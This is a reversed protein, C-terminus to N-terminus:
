MVDLSKPIAEIPRLPGADRVLDQLTRGPMLEMVIYPRGAEEDAALVFVCRPHVLSSALLGERRFRQLTESSHSYQASVLKLAVHKKQGPEEAEYVAGMGGKGLLRLIRYGGVTEPMEGQKDGGPPIETQLPSYERTLDLLPQAVTADTTLSHGCYGCFRPPDGSYELVHNCHGCLGQM